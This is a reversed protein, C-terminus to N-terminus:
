AQATSENLQSVVLVEAQRESFGRDLLNASVPEAVDWESRSSTRIVHIVVSSRPCHAQSSRFDRCMLGRDVNVHISDVSYRHSAPSSPHPRVVLPARKSRHAKGAERM